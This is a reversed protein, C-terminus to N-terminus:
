KKYRRKNCKTCHYIIRKIYAGGRKKDKAAGVRKRVKHLTEGGCYPCIEIHWKMQVGGYVKGAKSDCAKAADLMRSLGTPAQSPPTKKNTMKKWKPKDYLYDSDKM